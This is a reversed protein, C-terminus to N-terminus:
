RIEPHIRIAEGPRGPGDVNTRELRAIDHDDLVELADRVRDTAGAGDGIDRWGKQAVERPKMGDDVDGERIKAALTRAARWSASQPYLRRAHSRFHDFWLKAWEVTEPQVKVGAPHAGSQTAKVAHLILTMSGLLDGGKRLWGTWADPTSADDRAREAEREVSQIADWLADDATSALDVERPGDEESYAVDALRDYAHHLARRDEESPSANRHAEGDYDFDSAAPYAVAQFRQLLGDDSGERALRKAKAPQTTGWISLPPADELIEEGHKRTRRKVRSRGGWLNLYFEREGSARNPDDLQSLLGYLEDVKVAIGRPNHELLNFLASMTASSTYLNRYGAEITEKLDALEDALREYRQRDDADAEGSALKGELSNVEGRLELLDAKRSTTNADWEAQLEEEVKELPRWISRSSPSKRSGPSAVALGWLNPGTPWDLAGEDNRKTALQLTHGLATGLAVVLPTSVMCRPVCLGRASKDVYGQLADPIADDPLPKPPERDPLRQPEGDFSAPEVDDAEGPSDEESSIGESTDVEGPEGAPPTEESSTAESSEEGFDLPVVNDDPADPDNFFKDPDPEPTDSTSIDDTM